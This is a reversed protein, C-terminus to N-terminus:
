ESKTSKGTLDGSVKKIPDAVDKTVDKTAQKFERISQGLGKTLEPLRQPGFVLLAIIVVLVLHIPQLGFM